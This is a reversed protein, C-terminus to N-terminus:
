ASSLNRLRNYKFIILPLSKDIGYINKLKEECTELDITSLNKNTNNKQNDTTTIQYQVNDKTEMIDENKSINFNALNNRFTDIDKDREDKVEKISTSIDDFVITNKISEDKVEKISTSIVDFVVTNKTSEDIVEKISTTIDVFVITNEINQISVCQNKGEILNPFDNPCKYDSTCSFNNSSDFYYYYKCTPYCNSINM